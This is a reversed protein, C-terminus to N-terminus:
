PIVYDGEIDLVCPTKVGRIANVGAIALIKDCFFTIKEPTRCIRGEQLKRNLFNVDSKGLMKRRAEYAKFKTCRIRKSNWSM